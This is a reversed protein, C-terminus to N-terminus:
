VLAFVIAGIAIIAAVYILFKPTYITNKLPVVQSQVQVLSRKRDQEDLVCVIKDWVHAPPEVEQQPMSQPVTFEQFSFSTNVKESKLGEWNNGLPLSQFNTKSIISPKM